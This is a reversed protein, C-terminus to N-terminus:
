RIEVQDGVDVDVNVPSMTSSTGGGDHSEGRWFDDRRPWFRVIDVRFPSPLRTDDYLANKNEEYRGDNEDAQIRPENNGLGAQAQVIDYNKNGPYTPSEM